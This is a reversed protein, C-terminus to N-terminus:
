QKPATTDTATTGGAQASDMMGTTTTVATDQTPVVAPQTMVDQGQVLATDATMTAAEDGEAGEGGCAATAALAAIAFTTYFRAKM